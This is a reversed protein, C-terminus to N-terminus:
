KKRNKFKRVIDGPTMLFWPVIILLFVWWPTEESINVTEASDIHSDATNTNLNVTANDEAEVDGVSNNTKSLSNNDDGVQLEASISPVSSSPLISSIMKM